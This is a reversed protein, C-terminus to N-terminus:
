PSKGELYGVGILGAGAVMLAPGTAFVAYVGAVFLGFGLLELFTTVTARTM